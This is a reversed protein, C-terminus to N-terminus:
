GELAARFADAFETVSEFREDSDKATAKQIISDLAVALGYNLLSAREHLFPLPDRVQKLMLKMNTSEPFPHAGVLTEYLTLGLMYIDTRASVGRNLIQEPSLYAPSGLQVYSLTIRDANLRKAIGFDTLYVNGGDDLLINDPKIDRHVIQSEHACELADALRDLMDAARAPTWPGERRLSARLSGGGMFQSAIYIGDDDRWHDLLPVIYPHNLNTVIRIEIQFRQITESDDALDPRIIKIAVMRKLITHRARYVAGQGGEGIKELIEYGRIVQGTLLQDTM